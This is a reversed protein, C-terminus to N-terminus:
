LNTVIVQSLIFCFGHGDYMADAPVACRGDQMRLSRIPMGEEVLICARGPRQEGKPGYLISRRCLSSNCRAMLVLKTSTM